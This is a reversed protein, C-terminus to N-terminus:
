LCLTSIELYSASAGGWFVSHQGKNRVPFTGQLAEFEVPAMFHGSIKMVLQEGADFLMGTPWVEIELRMVEGVPVPLRKRHSLTKWHPKSLDEAVDRYSARLIGHPGFYKMPNTLPLEEGSTVGLAKIPINVHELLKGEQDAKRLHVYVDMDPAEESRVFLVARSPGLMTTREPFIFSFQIEGPDNGRQFIPAADAQYALHGVENPSTESLRGEPGLFFRKPKVQQPPWKLEEFHIDTLAPGNFPLVTARVHPTNEWANPIDKTYRDFFDNLEQIREPTYLDYWEQTGHVVLWKEDHPIDEYGRFSGLTHLMTSYSALIYAPVQIREIKARKDEWYANTLDSEESMAVIDEVGNRGCLMGLLAKWFQLEPIGGRRLQERFPDSVGELPAICALHPPREAAIFWQSIALWSNGLMTVKGNCWPLSAIEEIADYGDEGDGSGWFRMCGESHMAGRADVNVVAYGRPIWEAPDPGEFSEYGSLQSEPIGVRLPFSKLNLHGSGSKGYPGWVMIAPVVSDGVPRYIDAYIKTRDRLCLTQDREFVMPEDLPRSNPTRRHGAPLRSVSPDFGTYAPSDEPPPLPRWRIQANNYAM